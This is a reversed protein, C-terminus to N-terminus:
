RLDKKLVPMYLANPSRERGVHFVLNEEALLRIQKKALTEGIEFHKQITQRLEAFGMAKKKGFLFEISGARMEPTIKPKSGVRKKPEKKVKEKRGKKDWFAKMSESRKKNAMIRQLRIEDRRLRLFDEIDIGYGGNLRILRDQLILRKKVENESLRKFPKPKRSSRMLKDFEFMVDAQECKEKLHPRVIRLLDACKGGVLSWFWVNHKESFSLQGYPVTEFFAKEVGGVRLVLQWKRNIAMYGRDIWQALTEVNM